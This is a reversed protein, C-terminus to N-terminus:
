AAIASTEADPPVSDGTDMTTGASTLLRYGVGRISIIQMQELGCDALKKRLRSIHVDLTRDTPNWDRELVWQSLRQRSIPEGVYRSMAAPIKTEVETLTVRHGQQTTLTRVGVNFAVPLSDLKEGADSRYHKFRRLVSAVRALLVDANFPKTVYDDAGANLGSAIIESASLGSILIIPIDHNSRVENAISIGNDSPLLIDILALDVPERHLLKYLEQRTSVPMVNYTKGLIQQLIETAEPSDELVAITTQRYSRRLDNEVNMNTIATM